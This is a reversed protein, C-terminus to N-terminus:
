PQDVDKKKSAKVHTLLLVNERWCCKLAIHSKRGGRAQANKGGNSCNMPCCITWSWSEMKSRKCWWVRELMSELSINSAWQAQIKDHELKPAFMQSITRNTKRAKQNDERTNKVVSQIHSPNGWGEIAPIKWHTHVCGMLGIPIWKKRQTWPAWSTIWSVKAAMTHSALKWTSYSCNCTSREVVNLEKQRRISMTNVLSPMWVRVLM